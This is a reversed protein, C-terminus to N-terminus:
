ASHGIRAILMVPGKIEDRIPDQQFCVRDLRDGLLRILDAASRQMSGVIESDKPAEAIYNAGYTPDYTLGIAILGRDACVRIMEDVAQQPQNSYNLVWSSIVVDFARDPYPLRHMDGLDILSSSSILDVATVNQPQFGIAVLHFIEMETRPGISLARMNAANSYVPELSSLPNILRLTRKTSAFKSEDLERRNHEIAGPMVGRGDEEYIQLHRDSHQWRDFALYQRCKESLLIDAPNRVLINIMEQMQEASISLKRTQHEM